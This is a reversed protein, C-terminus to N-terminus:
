GPEIVDDVTVFSFGAARLGDVVTPLALHDTSLSGVHMVVIAGNAAADLVNDVVDAPDIGLWGRSDVTWMVEYRAGAVGLAADVAADRDGYPVRAFPLAPRGTASEIAAEARVIQDVIEAETLHETGTSFGTFSPHSYSHNLIQHGADGIRRAENPCLEVWRGTLGFSATIGEAALTDLIGAANGCDSGADFTLAIDATGPDGRWM